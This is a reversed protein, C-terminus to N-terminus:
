IRHSVGMKDLTCCLRRLIGLNRAVASITWSAHSIRDASQRELASLSLVDCLHTWAPTQDPM